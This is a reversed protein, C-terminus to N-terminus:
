RLKSYKSQFHLCEQSTRLQRQICIRPCSPCPVNTTNPISVNRSIDEITEPYMDQSLKYFSIKIRSSCQLLHYICTNLILLLLKIHTIYM